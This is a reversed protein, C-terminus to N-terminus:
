SCNHSYNERVVSGNARPGFIPTWTPYMTIVPNIPDWTICSCKDFGDKFHSFGDGWLSSITSMAEEFRRFTRYHMTKFWICLSRSQTSNLKFFCKYPAIKLYRKLSLSILKQFFMKWPVRIKICLAVKRILRAKHNSTKHVCLFPQSMFRWKKQLLFFIEFDRESSFVTVGNTVSNSAVASDEILMGNSVIGDYPWNKQITADRLNRDSTGLVLQIKAALTIPNGDNFDEKFGCLAAEKRCRECVKLNIEWTGPGHSSTSCYNAM